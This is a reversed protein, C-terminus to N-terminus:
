DDSTTVATAEVFETHDRTGTRGHCVLTMPIEADDFAAYLFTPHIFSAWYLPNYILPDKLGGVKM